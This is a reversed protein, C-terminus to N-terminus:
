SIIVSELTMKRKGNGRAAQKLLEHASTAATDRYKQACRGTVVRSSPGEVALRSVFPVTGSLDRAFQATQVGIM